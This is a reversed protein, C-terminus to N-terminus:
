VIRGLSQQFALWASYLSTQQSASLEAGISYGAIRLTALAAGGVDSLSGFVGYNATTTSATSAANAVASGNVSWYVQNDSRRTVIGLFPASAAGVGNVSTATDWGMWAKGLNDLQGGATATTATARNCGMVNQRSPPLTMAWVSGHGYTAIASGSALPQFGTNLYKTLTANGQLGGSAGTEAYDGQVFNVNTDTANGFQAGALSPGRYLPTRVAALTADSNGCFLNLRYFRDRIGAANIANCFTNVARLTTTSVTGGNTAVRSAWSAADANTGSAKPRLLRGNMGM